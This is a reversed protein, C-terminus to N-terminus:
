TFTRWAAGLIKVGRGHRHGSEKVERLTSSFAKGSTGVAILPGVCARASAGYAMRSTRPRTSRTPTAQLLGDALSAGGLSGLAADV